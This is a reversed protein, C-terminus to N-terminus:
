FSSHGEPLRERIEIKLDDSLSSILCVWSNSNGDLSHVHVDELVEIDEHM